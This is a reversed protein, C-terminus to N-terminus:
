GRVECERCARNMRIRRPSSANLPVSREATCRKLTIEIGMEPCKVMTGCFEEEFRRLMLAPAAPYKDHYLMSVTATSSGIRRAVETVGLEGVKAKFQALLEVLTM